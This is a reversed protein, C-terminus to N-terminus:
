EERLLEQPEVGLAAALKRVTSPFTSHTRGSEILWIANHSVGASDALERLTLLRQERLRRLKEADIVVNLLMASDTYCLVQCSKVSPALSSTHRLSVAVLLNVVLVYSFSSARAYRSSGLALVM